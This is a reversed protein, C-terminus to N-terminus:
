NEKPFMIDNFAKQARELTIKRSAIVIAHDFYRGTEVEILFPCYKKDHVNYLIQNVVSVPFEEDNNWTVVEIKLM